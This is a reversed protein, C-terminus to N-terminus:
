LKSLLCQLRGVRETYPVVYYNSSSNASGSQLPFAGKLKSYAVFVVDVRSARVRVSTDAWYHLPIRGCIIIM